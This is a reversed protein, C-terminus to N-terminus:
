RLARTRQGAAGVAALRGPHEAAAIAARRLTRVAQRTNQLDVAAAGVTNTLGIVTNAAEDIDTSM